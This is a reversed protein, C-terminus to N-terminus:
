NSYPTHDEFKPPEQDTAKAVPVIAEQIRVERLKSLSQNNKVKKWVSDLM